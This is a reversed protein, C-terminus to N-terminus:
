VREPIAIPGRLQLYFLDDSSCNVFWHIRPGDTEKLNSLESHNYVEEDTYDTVNWLHKTLKLCHLRAPNCNFNDIAVVSYEKPVIRNIDEKMYFEKHREYIAQDRELSDPIHVTKIYENVFKAGYVHYLRTLTREDEEILDGFSPDSIHCYIRFVYNQKVELQDLNTIQFCTYPQYLSEEDGLDFLPTIQLLYMEQEIIKVPIPKNATINKNSQFLKVCHQGNTSTMRQNCIKSYIHQVPFDFEKTSGNQNITFIEGEGQWQQTSAFQFHDLTRPHIAYLCKGQPPKEDVQFVVTAALFVGDDRYASYRVTEECSLIDIKLNSDKLFEFCMM